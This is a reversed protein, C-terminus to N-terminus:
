QFVNGLQVYNDALLIFAKTVWYDYSGVEDVLDFVAKEAKKYEGKKHHVLAALYRAEAGIESNLKRIRNLEEMALDFKGDAVLRRSIIIRAEQKQNETVKESTLVKSAYSTAEEANGLKNSLRMINTRAQLIQDVTQ